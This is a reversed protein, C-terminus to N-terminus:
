NEKQESEEAAFTELGFTVNGLFGLSVTDEREKSDLTKRHDTSNNFISCDESEDIRSLSKGRAV